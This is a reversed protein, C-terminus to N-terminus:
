LKFKQIEIGSSVAVRRSYVSCVAGWDGMVSVIHKISKEYAKRCPFGDTLKAASPLFQREM